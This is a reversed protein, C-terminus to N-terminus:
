VIFMNTVHEYHSPLTDCLACLPLIDNKIAHIYVVKVNSGEVNVDIGIVYAIKV